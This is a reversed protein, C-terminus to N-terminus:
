ELDPRNSLHRLFRVIARTVGHAELKAQNFLSVFDSHYQQALGSDSVFTANEFNKNEARETYNYSGWQVTKGDVIIYKDHM